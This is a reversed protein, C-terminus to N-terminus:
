KERTQLTRLLYESTGHKAHHTRKEFDAKIPMYLSWEPLERQTRTMLGSVVPGALITQVSVGWPSLEIRLTNSLACPNYVVVHCSRQLNRLMCTVMGGGCVARLPACLKRIYVDRKSAAIM